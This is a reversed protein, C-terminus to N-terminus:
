SKYYVLKKGAKAVRSNVMEGTDPNQWVLRWRARAAGSRNINLKLFGRRNTLQTKVLTFPGGGSSVQIAVETM